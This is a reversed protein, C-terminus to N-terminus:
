YCSYYLVDYFWYGDFVLGFDFIKFYGFVLILFNDLKIDCYIFKLCYVEEVVFIMEVIYFCVVVEYFVNERILFGFFDGGLMYEM